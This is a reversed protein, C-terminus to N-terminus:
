CELVLTVSVVVMVEVQHLPQLIAMGAGASDKVLLTEWEVMIVIVSGPHRWNNNNPVAAQEGGDHGEM